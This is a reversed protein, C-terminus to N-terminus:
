EINWRKQYYAGALRKPTYEQTVPQLGVVTGLLRATVLIVWSILEEVQGRWGNSGESGLDLLVPRSDLGAMITLIHLPKLASFEHRPEMVASLLQRFFVEKLRDNPSTWEELLMDEVSLRNLEETKQSSKFSDQAAKQHGKLGPRDWRMIEHRAKCAIEVLAGGSMPCDSTIVM